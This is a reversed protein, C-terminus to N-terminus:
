KLTRAFLNKLREFAREAQPQNYSPSDPVTWGHHAGDYVESEYQGGWEALAQNLKDIAEQPMSRDEVAHGFYLQARIQSLLLHPSAPDDTVLRGGHFSAAAGIHDPRAAATRLALAGSFCLGVVGIPEPGVSPQSRLFDIYASGDRTFAEPTLPSSLEQIRQMTQSEGFKMPFHFLPVRGSRYFVNPMLVSYGEEALRKAMQRQSPRIGGIDTLFLVGPLVGGAEASYFITDSSGDPTQVELEKEAL